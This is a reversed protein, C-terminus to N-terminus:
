ETSDLSVVVRLASVAAENLLARRLLQEDSEIQELLSLELKVNRMEKRQMSRVAMRQFATGESM